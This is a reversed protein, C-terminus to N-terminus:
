GHIGGLADVAGKVSSEVRCEYLKDYSLMKQTILHGFRGETFFFDCYPLAATAHGIDHMDNAQYNQRKDWRVAAHLGSPIRFSPLETTIKNLRFLNYIMNVSLNNEKAQEIESATPTKGTEKQYMYLFAESILARRADAAGGIESMFMQKFSRNEQAHSFKGTNLDESIDRFKTDIVGGNEKMVDIMERMSINWMHDFFSKQLLNDIEPSVSPNPHGYGLIYSLKTWVLDIASYTSRGTTKYVFQLIELFTRDEAFILTIGKSLEDVLSITENLTVEDSQKLIEVFTTESIPFLCLKRDSLLTVLEYLKQSLSDRRRGLKVDRLIIWFNTDLYVTKRRLVYKSLELQCQRVHEDLSIEPTKKHLEITSTEEM